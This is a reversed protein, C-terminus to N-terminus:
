GGRPPGPARGPGARRDPRHDTPRGHRELEVRLQVHPQPRAPRGARGGVRPFHLRSLWPSRGARRGRRRPRHLPRRARYGAQRHRPRACGPTRGALRAPVADVAESPTTGSTRAPRDQGPGPRAPRGARGLGPPAPRDGGAPAPRDVASRGRPAEPARRRDARRVPPPRAGGPPQDRGADRRAITFELQAALRVARIMRLADEGFRDAPVGVAALRRRELDARGGFPISSATAEGRARAGWALANVTFDRRALDEEISEGFEVRHPRRFDAYDHDRRFTTIEFWPATASSPSPGSPTRTSRAPFSPRSSGRAPRRHGPGLRPADPRAPHRAALRRGRLRSGTKM